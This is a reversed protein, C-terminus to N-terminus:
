TPLKGIARIACRTEGVDCRHCPSVPGHQSSQSAKGSGGGRSRGNVPQRMAACHKGQWPPPRTHPYATCSHALNGEGQHPPTPTPPHRHWANPGLPIDLAADGWGLGGWWPSPTHHISFCCDALMAGGRRVVGGGHCSRLRRSRGAARLRPRFVSLSARASFLWAM